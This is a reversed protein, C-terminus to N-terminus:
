FFGFLFTLGRTFLELSLTLSLKPLPFAPLVLITGMGFALAQVMRAGSFILTALCGLM